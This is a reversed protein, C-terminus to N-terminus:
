ITGSPHPCAFQQCLLPPQCQKYVWKVLIDLQAHVCLAIRVHISINYLCFRIIKLVDCANGAGRCLDDQRFTDRSITIRAMIYYTVIIIIIIIAYVKDHVRISLQAAPLLAPPPRAGNPSSLDRVGPPPVRYHTIFIIRCVQGRLFICATYRSACVTNCVRGVDSTRHRRDAPCPVPHAPVRPPRTFFNFILFLFFRFSVARYCISKTSVLAIDYHLCDNRGILRRQLIIDEDYVRKGAPIVKGLRSGQFKKLNM